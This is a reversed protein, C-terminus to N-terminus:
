AKQKALKASTERLFGLTLTSAGPLRVKYSSGVVQDMPTGINSLIKGPM